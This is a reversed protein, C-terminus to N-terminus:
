EIIHFFEDNNELTDFYHDPFSKALDYKDFGDTGVAVSILGTKKAAEVDYYSDGVLFMKKFGNPEIEFARHVARKIIDSRIFGDEGFGGFPFFRNLGAHELKIRGAKEINGTALGLLMDNRKSLMSILTSVGPLVMFGCSSKVENKLFEIYTEEVEKRNKLSTEAGMKKELIDKFIMQDTRGIYEIGDSAGEFSFLKIFAKDISRNGAGGSILLTGDIDFLILNKKIKNNM